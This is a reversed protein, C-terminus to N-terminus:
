VASAGTDSDGASPTSQTSARAEIAAESQQSELQDYFEQLYVSDLRNTIEDVMQWALEIMHGYHFRHEDACPDNNIAVMTCGLVTLTRELRSRETEIIDRLTPPLDPNLYDDEDTTSDRTAM